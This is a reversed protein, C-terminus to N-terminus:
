SGYKSKWEDYKKKEIEDIIKKFPVAWFNRWGFGMGTSGELRETMLVKKAKMDILTVWVAAAKDSKSMAEAVFLIGIGKKDGFDFGSVLSKIDDEKLRKFDATSTSKIEETNAKTNRKSVPGLDSNLNSKHFAGKLDYKKPEALVLDNIGDYQRDRIDNVSATPDNIVKNKTFDIGLYLVPTESSGFFEKLTQAQASLLTAFLLVLVFGPRLANTKKM